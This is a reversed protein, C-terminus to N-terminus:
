TYCIILCHLLHPPSSSNPLSILHHDSKGEDLQQLEQQLLVIEKSFIEDDRKKFWENAIEECDFQIVKDDRTYLEYLEKIPNVPIINPNM